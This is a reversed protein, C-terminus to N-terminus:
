QGTAVLVIAGVVQRVRDRPLDTLAILLLVGVGMAGVALLLLPGLTRWDVDRRIQRIASIGQTAIVVTSIVLAQEVRLGLLLLLPVAVLASGFGVVSYVFAALGTVVGIAIFQYADGM